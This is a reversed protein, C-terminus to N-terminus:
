FLYAKLKSLIIDTPLLVTAFSLPFPLLRTCLSSCKNVLNGIPCNPPLIEWHLPFGAGSDRMQCVLWSGPRLSLPLSPGACGSFCRVPPFCFLCEFDHVTTPSRARFFSFLKTCSLWSTPTTSDDHFLFILARFFSDWLCTV